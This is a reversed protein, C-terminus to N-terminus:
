TLPKHPGLKRSKLRLKEKGPTIQTDIKKLSWVQTTRATQIHASWVVEM